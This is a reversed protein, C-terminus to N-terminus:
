RAFIATDENSPNATAVIPVSSGSQMSVRAQRRLSRMMRAHTTGNAVLTEIGYEEGRVWRVMGAVVFVRKPNSVTVVLSCTQGVRMPLDGSLRWGSLSINWVTGFGESLGAHYTVPYCVPFRRYPRIAFPM